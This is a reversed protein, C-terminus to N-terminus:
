KKKQPASSKKSAPPRMGGPATTPNPECYHVMAPASGSGENVTVIFLKDYDNDGLNEVTKGGQLQALLVPVTNSHGIVLINGQGYLLNRALTATDRSQSVTPTIKLKVETVYIQTIGSDKLTHALCEARKEGAPSLLADPAASLKEAHRVLFITRTNQQAIALQSLLLATFIIGQFSRRM